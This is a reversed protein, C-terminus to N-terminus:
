SSASEALVQREIFILSASMSATSKEVGDVNSNPSQNM